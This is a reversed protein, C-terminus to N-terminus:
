APSGQRPDQERGQIAGYLTSYATTMAQVSFGAVWAARAAAGMRASRAPDAALSAIAEAFAEPSNGVALGRAEPGPAGLLEVVGGVASAVTPLGASFAELLSMPAGEHDSPLLFLDALHLYTMAGPASGLALFNHPDGPAAEGGIWLLRARGALLRAAERALDIRKPAADRAVLIALVEGPRRFAAIRAAVFPDRPPQGALDPVGNPILVTENGDARMRGLDYSSVAAIADARGRLARDVPLLKRHAVKLQDYGHMTYVVRAGGRGGSIRGLAAAKSTHLHIIDPKWSRYLRSLARLAAFDRLPRVARGLEPVAFLEVRADIGAWAEAGAESGFAIASDEGRAALEEALNRVVSQAGGPEGLTVVQLIRM